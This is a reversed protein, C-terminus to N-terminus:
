WATTIVYSIFAGLAAALIVSGIWMNATIVNGAVIDRHNRLARLLKTYCGPCLDDLRLDIDNGSRCAIERSLCHHEKGCWDCNHIIKHAM